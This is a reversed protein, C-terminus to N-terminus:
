GVWRGGRRRWPRRRPCSLLLRRRLHRSPLRWWRARLWRAPVAAEAGGGRGAAASGGGRCGQQRAAAVGSRGRWQPVAAAGGSCLRRRRVVAAAGSGGRRRRRAGAAAGGADRWLLHVGRVNRRRRQAGAAAGGSSRRWWSAEAAAGAGGCWHGPAGAAGGRLSRGQRCQWLRAVRPHVRVGSVGALLGFIAHSCYGM